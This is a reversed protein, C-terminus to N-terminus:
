VGIAEAKRMEERVQYAVREEAIRRLPMIHRNTRIEPHQDLFNFLGKPGASKLTRRAKRINQKTLDRKAKPAPAQNQNKQKKKAM